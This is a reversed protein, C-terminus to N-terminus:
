VGSRLIGFSVRGLATSDAVDESGTMAGDEDEEDDDEDEEEDDEGGSNRSAISCRTSLVEAGRTATGGVAGDRDGDCDDSADSEM